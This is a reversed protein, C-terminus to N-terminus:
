RAFEIEWRSEGRIFLRARQGAIKDTEQQAGNTGVVQPYWRDAGIPEMIKQPPSWQQPKGLDLNYSVYIGEQAWRSDKARNLLIVYCRLHTNWHISPGWFADVDTRHWDTKVPFVPSVHGGIGPEAWQGHYWKLLKGAPADRESWRMRAVAVGQETVEPNYTSIFFYLFEQNRDLMVSFDGNGGAFYFNTTDCRVPTYELVIGLDQWNAGNDKSKVAGIKPATLHPSNPHFESCVNNPELHYWGYLTGDAAHWTAEIWRGGNAQNNYECKSYDSTLHFLDRGSSRWPHGASNFVYFTDGDWHAPSNCDCDGPKQPSASQAGRFRILPAELIRLAAAPAGSASCDGLVGFVWVCACIRVYVRNRTVM